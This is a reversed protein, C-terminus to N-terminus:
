TPSVVAVPNSLSGHLCMEFKTIVLINRRTANPTGREWARADATFGIRSTDETALPLLAKCPQGHGNSQNCHYFKRGAQIILTDIGQQNQESRFHLDSEKLVPATDSDEWLQCCTKVSLESSGRMVCKRFNKWFQSIFQQM